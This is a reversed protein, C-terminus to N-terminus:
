IRKWVLFVTNEAIQLSHPEELSLVSIKSKVSFM